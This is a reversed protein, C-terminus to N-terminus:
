DTYILLLSQGNMITGNAIHLTLVHGGYRLHLQPSRPENEGLMEMAKHMAILGRYACKESFVAPVTNGDALVAYRVHSKIGDSGFVLAHQSTSGNAFHLM